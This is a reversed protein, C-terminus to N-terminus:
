WVCPYEEALLQGIVPVLFGWFRPHLPGIRHADTVPQWAARRLYAESALDVTPAPITHQIAVALFLVYTVPGVVKPVHLRRVLRVEIGTEEYTERVAAQEFTEEGERSGGPLVWYRESNRPDEHEVLLLHGRSLCLVRSGTLNERM